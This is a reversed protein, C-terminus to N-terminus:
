AAAQRQNRARELCEECLRNEFAEDNTLEGTGGCDDCVAQTAEGEMMQWIMRSREQDRSVVRDMYYGCSWLPKTALRVPCCFGTECDLMGRREKWEKHVAQLTQVFRKQLGPPWRSPPMAAAQAETLWQAGSHMSSLVLQHAM